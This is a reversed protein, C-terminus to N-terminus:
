SGDTIFACAFLLFVSRMRMGGAAAVVHDDDHGRGRLVVAGEDDRFMLTMHRYVWADVTGVEVDFGQVVVFDGPFEVAYTKGNGYRSYMMVSSLM